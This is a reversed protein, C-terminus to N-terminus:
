FRRLKFLIDDGQFSGSTTGAPSPILGKAKHLPAADMPKMYKAVTEATQTVEHSADERGASGIDADRCRVRGTESIRCLPPGDASVPLLGNDPSSTDYGDRRLAINDESLFVTDTKLNNYKM